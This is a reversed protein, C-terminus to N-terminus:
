EEYDQKNWIARGRPLSRIYKNKRYETKCNASRPAMKMQCGHRQQERYSM